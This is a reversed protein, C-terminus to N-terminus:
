SPRRSDQSNRVSERREICRAPATSLSIGTFSRCPTSSYPGFPHWHRFRPALRKLRVRGCSTCSFSVKRRQDDPQIDQLAAVTSRIVQLIQRLTGVVIPEAERADM